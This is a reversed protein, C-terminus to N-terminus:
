SPSEKNFLILIIWRCCESLTNFKGIFNHSMVPTLDDGYKFIWKKIERDEIFIFCKKGISVMVSYKM